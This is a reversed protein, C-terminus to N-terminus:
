GSPDPVPREVGLLVEDNHSCQVRNYCLSYIEPSAALLLVHMHMTVPM